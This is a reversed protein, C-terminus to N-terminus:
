EPTRASRGQRLALAALLLTIAGVAVLLGVLRADSGSGAAEVAASLARGANPDRRKQERQRYGSPRQLKRAPAGVTPDTAIRELTPAYPGGQQVVQNRVVPPLARRGPKGVGAPRSGESTPVQEIYQEIAAPPPEEEASAAPSAVLAAVATAGILAVRPMM